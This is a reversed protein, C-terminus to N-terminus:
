RSRIWVRSRCILAVCGTVRLTGNANLHLASRYSRGSKPDYAHGAFDGAAPMFDSLVPLGAITRRRLAPDPNNVDTAPAGPSLVRVVRGCLAPGCPGIRVIASHDDTLWDGALVPTAAALLLALMTGAYRRM